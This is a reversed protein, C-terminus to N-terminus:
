KRTMNYDPNYQTKCAENRQKHLVNEVYDFHTSQTNYTSTYLASSFYHPQISIRKYDETLYNLQQM